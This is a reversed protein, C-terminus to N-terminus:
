FQEKLHTFLAPLWILISDETPYDNAKGEEEFFRDFLHYSTGYSLGLGLSFDDMLNEIVFRSM